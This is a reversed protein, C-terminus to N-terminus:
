IFLQRANKCLKCKQRSNESEIKTNDKELVNSNSSPKKCSKCCKSNDKELVNSNSSPKKCSKCSCCCKSTPKKCCNNPPEYVLHRTTEIHNPKNNCWRCLYINTPFQPNIIKKSIIKGYPYLMDKNCTNIECDKDIFSENADFINKLQTIQLSNNDIFPFYASNLTQWNQYNKFQKLVALNDAMKITKLTEIGSILKNYDQYNLNSDNKTFVRKYM